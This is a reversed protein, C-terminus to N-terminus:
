DDLKFDSFLHWRKAESGRPHPPLGTPANRHSILRAALHQTSAVTTVAEEKTGAHKINLVRARTNLANPLPTFTFYSFPAFQLKVRPPPWAWPRGGGPAASQEGVCGNAIILM